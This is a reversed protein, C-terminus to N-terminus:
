RLSCAVAHVRDDDCRLHQHLYCADYAPPVLMPGGRRPEKLGLKIEGHQSEGLPGLNSRSDAKTTCRTNPDERKLSCAM